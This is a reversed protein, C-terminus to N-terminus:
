RIKSSDVRTWEILHVATELVEDRGAALGQITPKVVVDPIIGIRQTPRHDPFFVGLGSIMTKLQGPLDISSVNGDAGATTSGIVAANPMARLAMATYEAQSQSTEDVLIVIKGSYHVPGPPISVADGFQFAGPNALDAHSFVAFPTPRTAFYAGLAFPMFESPYNRIDIIIGKTNKAKEFYAPLDAAKITSLKLYAVQLSLLRFTDGPQDHTAWEQKTKIRVTQIQVPRGERTVEVSVPGCAGRTLSAALDRQRAASNSDAYYIEWKDILSQISVGDFTDLIDGPQFTSDASDLRYIAPKNDVFRLKIPLACEGVPPRADLSSWLNAHTDNAKAILEFLALQYATKDKALALTPIFFELVAPWNQGAVERDPAWYQLINWWRILALLQYGSDPFSIQPYALEHRFEPNGVGPMLSVYFQKGTRNAYISELRQSLPAGLLKRDHIWELPPKIDLDGSPASFCVSCASLGLKDIWNLLADNAHDRDPAALIAPLIRLLDYDWHRQGSTIAPHHYKLFGWVRALTALNSIQTPTLKDVAIRSGSDFDHDEPLGPLAAAEAIPKGDVMLELDDAWLTGKGALIVGFFLKEATPNIPLTISYQAWDRTGKVQQSDMNELSLMQGGGDQRMWLAANGSVDQLRFWGRLEVSGGKFDIPLSRTIVSFTETSKDDRQLRVAWQGSHHVTNDAAFTEPPGGYWGTLALGKQDEFGMSQQLNARTVGSQALSSISLALFAAASVCGNM